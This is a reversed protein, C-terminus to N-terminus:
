RLFQTLSLIRVTSTTIRIIEMIGRIDQSNSDKGHDDHGKNDSKGFDGKGKHGNNGPGPLAGKSQNGHNGHGESDQGGKGHDGHGQHGPRYEEFLLNLTLRSSLDGEVFEAEPHVAQRHGQSLNDVVVVEEGMEVLQEVVVSGIYGAGGTVLVKM